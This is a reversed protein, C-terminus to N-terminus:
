GSCAKIGKNLNSALGLNKDSLLLTDIKTKNIIEINELTSGDDSVIIEFPIGWNIEHLVELCKNLANPRNFHTILISLM